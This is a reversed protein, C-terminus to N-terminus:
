EHEIHYEIVRDFVREYFGNGGCCICYKEPNLCHEGSVYDLTCNCKVKIKIKM